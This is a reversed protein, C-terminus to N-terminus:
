NSSVVVALLLLDIDITFPVTHLSSPELLGM